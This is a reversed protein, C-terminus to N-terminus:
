KMTFEGFVFASVTAAKDEIAAAKGIRTAFFFELFESASIRGDNFIQILLFANVLKQSGNIREDVGADGIVLGAAELTEHDREAARAALVAGDIEGFLECFSQACAAAEVDVEAM